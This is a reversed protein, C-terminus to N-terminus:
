GIKKSKSAKSERLKKPAGKAIIKAEKKNKAKEVLKAFREVRDLRIFEPVVSALPSAKIPVKRLKTPVGLLPDGAPKDSVGLRFAFYLTPGILCIATLIPQARRFLTPGFPRPRVGSYRFSYGM